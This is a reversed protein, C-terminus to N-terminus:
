PTLESGPLGLGRLTERVLTEIYAIALTLVRELTEDEGWDIIQARALDIAEHVVRDGKRKQQGFKM